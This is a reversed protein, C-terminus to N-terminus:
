PHIISLHVVDKFPLIKVPNQDQSTSSGISSPDLNYEFHVHYAGGAEGVTGLRQGAKVRQGVELHDIKSMHGYYAYGPDNDIKVIVAYGAFMSGLYDYNDIAVIEGDTAFYVGADPDQGTESANMPLLDIGTHYGKPYASNGVSYDSPGYMQGIMYPQNFIHAINGVVKSTNQAAKNANTPDKLAAAEQNKRRTRDKEEVDAKEKLPALEKQQKELEKKKAALQENAEYVKASFQKNQIKQKSMRMIELGGGKQIDQKTQELELKQERLYVYDADSLTEEDLQKNVDELEEEVQKYTRKAVAVKKNDVPKIEKKLNTITTELEKIERTLTTIATEKKQVDTKTDAHVTLATGCLLTVVTSTGIVWKKLQM